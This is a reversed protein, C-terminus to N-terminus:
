SVVSIGTAGAAEELSGLDTVNTFGNSTMLDTAIASRRGTRCYVQYSATPDLDGLAAELSGDEVNYNLAGQLHGEAFEESTRVDIIISEQAQDQSVGVQDDLKKDASSNDSGCSALVFISLLALGYRAFGFSKM